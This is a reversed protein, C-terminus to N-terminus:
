KLNEQNKILNREPSINPNIFLTHGILKQPIQDETIKSSFSVAIAIDVSENAIIDGSEM